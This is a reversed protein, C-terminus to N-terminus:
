SASGAAQGSPKSSAKAHRGNVHRSTGGKPKASSPFSGQGNPLTTKPFQHRNGLYARNLWSDPLLDPKVALALLGLEPMAPVTEPTWATQNQGQTEGSTAMLPSVSCPMSASESASVANELMPMLLPPFDSITPWSGMIVGDQRSQGSSGTHSTSVSVLGADPASAVGALGSARVHESDAQKQALRELNRERYLQGFSHAQRVLMSWWAGDKGSIQHGEPTILMGRTFHWGQWSQGPLEMYRLLRLLKYAMVPIQHRGSTWNHVTRLSVHLMKAAQPAKLGMDALMGRFRKALAM